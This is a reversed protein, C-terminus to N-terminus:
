GRAFMGLTSCGPNRGASKGSKKRVARTRQRESPRPSTWRSTGRVCRRSCRSQSSRWDFADKSSAPRSGVFRTTIGFRRAIDEVTSGDEGVFHRFAICEDAPNMGARQFNEALSTEGAQVTDSLVMVPVPHDPLLKGEAILAQLAILRRGGATVEYRGKKRGSAPVAILNQLVGRAAIDAKLSDIPATSRTRRVNRASISLRSVPILEIEM